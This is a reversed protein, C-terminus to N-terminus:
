DTVRKYKKIMCIISEVTLLILMISASFNMMYSTLNINNGVILQFPNLILVFLFLYIWDTKTHHEENLFLIVAIFLYLGTYEASNVPLIILVLLLQTIRKWFTKQFFSSIIAIISVVIDFKGFINYIWERYSHNELGAAWFRFNFRPFLGYQYAKNNLQLNNIWISINNLGGEFFLFPVFAFILGYIFLRISERYKRDFLLVIGLIAPYAKLGAAIALAIFAIERIIKNDHNYNLIFFTTCIAALTIINGREFSFMFIGSLMIVTAISFKFIKNGKYTDYLILYIIASTFFMFLSSTALGINTHGAAFANLNLYAACKGLFYFILYALPPYAHEAANSDCLGYMYPNKDVSFKAVNYYDAMYNNAKLFFVNAQDGNFNNIFSLLFCSILVMMSFIFVQEYSRNRNLM